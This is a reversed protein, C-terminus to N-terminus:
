HFRLTCCTWRRIQTPSPQPTKITQADAFLVACSLIGAVLLKNFMTFHNQVFTPFLRGMGVKGTPLGDLCLGLKNSSLLLD